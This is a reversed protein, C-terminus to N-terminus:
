ARDKIIFTTFYGPMHGARNIDNIMDNMDSYVKEEDMGCATVAYARCLGNNSVAAASQAVSEANKGSKMVIKTGSLESLRNIDAKGALIHIDEDREGLPIQLRASVACVSTVGPIIEAEYGMEVVRKHLEMYTGYLTPDGLNLFAVNKGEDLKRCIDASGKDYCLSLKDYDKIMFVPVTLIEKEYLKDVALAAIQWAICVDASKAPIGIIDCNEICKVAKLTILMPDGPGVGVGYLKGTM